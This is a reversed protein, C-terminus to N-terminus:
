IKALETPGLKATTLKTAECASLWYARTRKGAENLTKAQITYGQPCEKIDYYKYLAKKGKFIINLEKSNLTLHGDESIQEKQRQCSQEVFSYDEIDQKEIDQPEIEVLKYMRVRKYDVIRKSMVIKYNEPPKKFGYYKYLNKLGKFEKKIQKGEFKRESINDCICELQTALDNLRSQLVGRLPPLEASEQM